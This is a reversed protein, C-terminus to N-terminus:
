YQELSCAVAKFIPIWMYFDLSFLRRLFLTWIYFPYHTDMRLFGPLIIKTFVSRHTQDELGELSDSHM